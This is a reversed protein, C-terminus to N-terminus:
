IGKWASKGCIKQGVFICLIKLMNRAQRIQQNTISFYMMRQEVIRSDVHVVILRQKKQKYKPSISNIYDIRKPLREKPNGTILCWKWISM